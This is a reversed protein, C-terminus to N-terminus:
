LRDLETPTLLNHDALARLAAAVFEEADIRDLNGDAPILHETAATIVSTAAAHEDGHLYTAATLADAISCVTDRMPAALNRVLRFGRLAAAHPNTQPQTM